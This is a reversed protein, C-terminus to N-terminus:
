EMWDGCSARYEDFFLFCGKLTQCRCKIKRVPSQDPHIFLAVLEQFSNCHTKKEVGDYQYIDFGVQKAQIHLFLGGGSHSMEFLGVSDETSEELFERYGDHLHNLQFDDFEKWRETLHDSPNHWHRGCYTTLINNEHIAKIGVEEGYFLIHPIHPPRVLDRIMRVLHKEFLVHQRYSYVVTSIAMKLTLEIKQRKAKRQEALEVDNVRRKLCPYAM